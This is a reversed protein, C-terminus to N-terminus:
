SEARKAWEIDSIEYLDECVTKNGKPVFVEIVGKQRLGIKELVAKSEPNGQITLGIIVELEWVNFGYELVKRVAETAYGQGRYPTGIWYKISARHKGEYMGLGVAGICVNESKHVIAFTIGHNIEFRRQHLSIWYGINRQSVSEQWVTMMKQISRDAMYETVKLIDARAFKRLVLRETELRPFETM